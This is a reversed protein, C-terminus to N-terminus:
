VKQLQTLFFLSTEVAVRGCVKQNRAYLLAFHTIKKVVTKKHGMKTELRGQNHLRTHCIQKLPTVVILASCM